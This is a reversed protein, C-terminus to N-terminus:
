LTQISSIIRDFTKDTYNGEYPILILINIQKNNVYLFGYGILSLNNIKYHTKLSISNDNIELDTIELDKGSMELIHSQILNEFINEPQIDNSNLKISYILALKGLKDKGYLKYNINSEEQSDLISFKGPYEFQLQDITITRWKEPILKICGFAFVALIIFLSFYNKLLRFKTYGDKVSIPNKNKLYEGKM